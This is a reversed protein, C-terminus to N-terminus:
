ASASAAEVLEVLRAVGHFLFAVRRGDFAVAPRPESVPIFGQSRFQEIDAEMADTEFCLHYTGGGAALARDIPGPVELPAVLEVCGGPWRAFAIRVNQVPDAVVESVDAGFVDRFLASARSMDRVAFGTHDLRRITM